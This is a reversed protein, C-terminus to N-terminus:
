DSILAMIRLGYFFSCYTDVSRPSIRNSNCRMVWDAPIESNLNGELDAAWDPLCRIGICTVVRNVLAIGEILMHGTVDNPPHHRDGSMSMIIM